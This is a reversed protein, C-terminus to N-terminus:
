STWGWPLMYYRKNTTPGAGLGVGSVATELSLPKTVNYFKMSADIKVILREKHPLRLYSAMGFGNQM